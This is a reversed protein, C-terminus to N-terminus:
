FDEILDVLHPCDIFPNRNGQRVWILDHREQEAESPPHERHWRRVAAEQDADIEFDYRVAFYLLARAAAGKHDDRPEFVRDGRANDGARSGGQTWDVDVVVGMPSNFRRTNASAIVPFLHHLDSRAPLEGAGLSQPWTHETNMIEIDPIEGEPVRIWQGTYVGQVQADVNDLEGFMFYRAAGYSLPDQALESLRQVTRRLDGGEDLAQYRTGVRCQSALPGLMTMDPMPQADPPVDADPVDIDPMEMLEADPVAVDPMPRMDPLVADPMVGADFGVSVDPESVRADVGPVIQPEAAEDDCGM